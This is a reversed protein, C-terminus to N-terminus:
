PMTTAIDNIDDLVLLVSFNPSVYVKSKKDNQSPSISLTSVTRETSKLSCPSAPGTKQVKNM